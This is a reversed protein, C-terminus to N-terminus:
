YRNHGGKALVVAEIRRSMSEMLTHCSNALIEAREKKFKSWLEGADKPSEQYLRLIM